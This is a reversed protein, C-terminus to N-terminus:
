RGSWEIVILEEAINKGGHVIFVASYVAASVKKIRSLPEHVTYSRLIKLRQSHLIGEEPIYFGREYRIPSM